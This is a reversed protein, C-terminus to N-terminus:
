TAKKVKEFVKLINKTGERFFLDEKEITRARHQAQMIWCSDDSIKTLKELQHVINGTEAQKAIGHTKFKAFINNEWEGWEKLTLLFAGSAVADYAMDGSPKTIFGDAWPFAMDILLENADIIQPHYLVTLPATIKPTKLTEVELKKGIEFQAPDPPTIEQYRVNARRAVDAVMNKIDTHTSAYVVLQLRPNKVSLAPMLQEVISLIEPKNTGLGGTTLCLRLPRDPHWIQKNERAQLVRPDIPPGTIIVRNESISKNMKHAKELFEIKTKEDFVCFYAKPNEAHVLYDERVHPDTIVEVVTKGHELLLNGATIHYSLIPSSLDRTLRLLPPAVSMLLPNQRRGYKDVLNKLFRLAFYRAVLRGIRETLMVSAWQATSVYNTPDVIWAKKPDIADKWITVAQAIAMSYHARSFVLDRTLDEEPLDHIGKLDEHYTGSVTVIPVHTQRFYAHDLKWTQRLRADLM